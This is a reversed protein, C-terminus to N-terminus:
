SAQPYVCHLALVQCVHLPGSSRVHHLHRLLCRREACHRCLVTCCLVAGPCLMLGGWTCLVAGPCVMLGGWTCLVACYLVRTWCWDMWSAVLARVLVCSFARSCTQNWSAYAAHSCPADVLGLPLSHLARRARLEGDVEPSSGHWPRQTPPSM